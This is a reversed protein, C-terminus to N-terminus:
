NGLAFNIPITYYVRVPRGHQIGPIWNGAKAIVRVAENDINTSVSNLVKINSVKGDNEIIFGVVVTGQINAGKEYDPYSVNKSLFKYFATVGGKFQPEIELKTYKVTDGKDSVSIGSVLSGNDYNEIYTIQTTEELGKWQGDKKGNKLNGELIVKKFKDNFEKYYGNGDTVLPTGLTDYESTILFDQPAVGPTAPANPYNSTLYLKGNPYFQFQDGSFAGGKYNFVSQRNGNKYFTVCQGELVTPNIKTSKGTLKPKGNPYFEAVNYLNTGSDPASVVRVFDASDRDKVYQGNYKLYYVNQAFGMAGSLLLIVSLLFKM